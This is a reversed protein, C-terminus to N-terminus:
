VNGRVTQGQTVYGSVPLENPKDEGCRTCKGAEDYNHGFLCFKNLDTFWNTLIGTVIVMIIALLVITVVVWKWKDSKRSSKAM